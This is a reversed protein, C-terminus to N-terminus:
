IIIIISTALFLRYPDELSVVVFDTGTPATITKVKTGKPVLAAAGNAMDNIMINMVEPAEQGLRTIKVTLSAFKELNSYMITPKTIHCEANAAVALGVLMLSVLLTRMTKM